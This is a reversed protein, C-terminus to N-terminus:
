RGVQPPISPAVLVDAHMQYTVLLWLSLGVAALCTLLDLASRM